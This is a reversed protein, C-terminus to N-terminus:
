ADCALSTFQLWTGAYATFGNVLSLTMVCRFYLLTRIERATYQADSWIEGVLSPGCLSGISFNRPFSEAAALCTPWSCARNRPSCPLNIIQPAQAHEVFRDFFHCSPARFFPPFRSMLRQDTCYHTNDSGYKRQQLLFQFLSLAICTPGVFSQVSGKLARSFFYAPAVPLVCPEIISRDLLSSAPSSPPPFSNILLPPASFPSLLTLRYLPFPIGCMPAKIEGDIM